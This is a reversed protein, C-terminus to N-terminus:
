RGDRRSEDKLANVYPALQAGRQAQAQGGVDDPNSLAFWRERYHPCGQRHRRWNINERPDETM